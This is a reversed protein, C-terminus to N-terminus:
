STAQAATTIVLGGKCMKNRLRIFEQGFRTSALFKDDATSYEPMEMTKSLDGVSASTMIGQSASVATSGPALEAKQIIDIFVSILHATLYYCARKYYVGFTIESVELKAQDLQEEIREDSFMDTDAFVPYFYVRFGSISLETAM